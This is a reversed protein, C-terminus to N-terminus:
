TPWYLLLLATGAVYFSASVWPPSHLVFHALVGCLVISEASAFGLLHATTQVKAAADSNGEMAKLAARAFLGRRLHYVSWASWSILAALILLSWGLRHAPIGAPVAAVGAILVFSMAFSGWLLRLTALSLPKRSPRTM